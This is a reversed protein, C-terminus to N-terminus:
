GKPSKRDELLTVRGASKLTFVMQLTMVTYWLNVLVQAISVLVWKTPVQM